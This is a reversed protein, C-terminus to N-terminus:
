GAHEPTASVELDRATRSPDVRPRYVPEVTLRTHGPVWPDAWCRIKVTAPLDAIDRQHRYSRRRTADYWSTEVYGDRLNLREVELSEAPLLTELELTVREPRANLVVVLARPDPKFDPRTTVPTCAALLLCVRFASTPVRFLLTVDSAVVGVRRNRTGREANRM